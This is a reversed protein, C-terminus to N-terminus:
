GKGPRGDGRKGRGKKEGTAGARRRGQQRQGEAGRYGRGKKGEHRGGQQMTKSQNSGRFAEKLGTEFTDPQHESREPLMGGRDRNDKM